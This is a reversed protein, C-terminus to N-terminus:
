LAGTAELHVRLRKTADRHIQCVRSETVGLVAGIEKLNLDEHYYLALVQRMKEPLVDLAGALQQHLERDCATDLPSCASDDCTTELFDPGVDDLGVVNSGSLKQQREYLEDISLGLASAVEDQGPTRGLTGELKRIAERLENALRRMDRTLNDRSRLEDLMAGRIRFEAFSEFSEGREPDFTRTADILGVSGASVLDALDVHSPLRRALRRAVKEVYPYYRAAQARRDVCCINDNSKNGNVTNVYGLM